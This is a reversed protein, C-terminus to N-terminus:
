LGVSMGRKLEEGVKGIKSMVCLRAMNLYIEEPTPQYDGYWEYDIHNYRDDYYLYKDEDIDYGRITMEGALSRYRHRLWLCKNYFFKMHGEGLTYEKPIAIDSPKKGKEQLALVDRSIRTIEVYEGQLHDKKLQCPNVLNIRTM